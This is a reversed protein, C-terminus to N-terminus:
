AVTSASKSSTDLCIADELIVFYARPEAPCLGLPPEIRTTFGLLVLLLGRPEAANPRRLVRMVSRLRIAIASWLM